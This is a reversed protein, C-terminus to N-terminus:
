ADEEGQNDIIKGDGSTETRLIEKKLTTEIHKMGKYNDNYIDVEELVMPHKIVEIQEENIPIRITEFGKNNARQNEIVLEERVIPVTITKDEKIIDKYINVDGTQVKNKSIDLKEERLLLKEINDHSKSKKPM